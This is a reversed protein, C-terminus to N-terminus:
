PQFEISLQRFGQLRIGIRPNPQIQMFDSPMRDSQTPNRCFGSRFGTAFIEQGPNYFLSLKCTGDYIAQIIFVQEFNPPSTCFTGDMHLTHSDFLLKLQINSSWVLVRGASRVHVSQDIQFKPNDSDHLLLRDRNFYDRTYVDPITFSSSQSVARTMKQRNRVLSRGSVFMFLFFCVLTSINNLCIIIMRISTVNPLVALAEATLLDNRIEQEAIKKLPILENEARERMVERLNRIEGETPNPLHSHDTMKGGFRIFEDSLTTHLIMGCKRNACRWYKTTKPRNFNRFQFHYGDINLM